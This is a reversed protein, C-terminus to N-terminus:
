SQRRRRGKRVSRWAARSTKNLMQGLILGPAARDFALVRLVDRHDAAQFASKFSWYYLDSALMKWYRRVSDSLSADQLVRRDRMIMRLKGIMQHRDERSASETLSGDRILYIYFPEPSMYWRAGALFCDIYLIFDEGNRASENYKLAHAEIFERKFMPHMFVYSSRKPLKADEYCSKMFEAFLLQRPAALKAEPIMRWGMDDEGRSLLLNDSVLDANERQALALLVELRRPHFRDDADLLAVWKGCALKLGRNRSASPGSNTAMRVYRIRPDRSALELVIAATEDISADDVVIIEVDPITQAQVSQIATRIYDKANYAPVIVSIAPTGTM